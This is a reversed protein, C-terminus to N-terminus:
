LRLFYQGYNRFVNGTTESFMASLKKLRQGYNKLVMPLTKRQSPCRFNRGRWKGSELLIAEKAVMVM